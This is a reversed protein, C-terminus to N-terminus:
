SRALKTRVLSVIFIMNLSDERSPTSPIIFPDNRAEKLKSKVRRSVLNNIFKTGTLQIKRTRQFLTGQYIEDFSRSPHTIRDGKNTPLLRLKSTM